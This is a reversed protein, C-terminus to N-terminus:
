GELKQAWDDMKDLLQERSMVLVEGSDQEETLEKMESIVEQVAGAIDFAKDILEAADHRYTDKGITYYFSDPKFWSDRKLRDKVIAECVSETSDSELSM